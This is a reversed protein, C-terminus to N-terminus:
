ENRHGMAALLCRLNTTILDLSNFLPQSKTVNAQKLLEAESPEAQALGMTGIALAFGATLIGHKAMKM